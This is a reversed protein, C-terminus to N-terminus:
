RFHPGEHKTRFVPWTDRGARCDALRQEWTARWERVTKGHDHDPQLYREFVDYVPGLEPFWYQGAVNLAARLELLGDGPVLFADHIAVVDQVGVQNLAAVVVAAYLADLMQILGPAIRRVLKGENIKHGGHGIGGSIVVPERVYLKFAGSSVPIKRRKPPNWTFSGDVLDHAVADHCQETRRQGVLIV